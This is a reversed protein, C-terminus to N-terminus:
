AEPIGKILYEEKIDFISDAAKDVARLQLNKEMRLLVLTNEVAHVVNQWNIRPLNKRKVCVSLISVLM